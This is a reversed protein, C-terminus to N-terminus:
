PWVRGDVTVRKVGKLKKVKRAFKIALARSQFGFSLDREDDTFSYGSGDSYRRGIEAAITKEVERDPMGLYVVNLYFPDPKRRRRRRRQWFDAVKAETAVKIVDVESLKKIKKV